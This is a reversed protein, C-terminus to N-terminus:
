HKSGARLPAIRHLAHPAACACRPCGHPATSNTCAPRPPSTASAMAAQLCTPVRPVRMPTVQSLPWAANSIHLPAQQLGRGKLTGALSWCAWPLGLLVHALASLKCPSTYQAAHGPEELIISGTVCSCGPCGAASHCLRAPQLESLDNRGHIDQSWVQFHLKPWGALGRCAYHIDLPHSWVVM